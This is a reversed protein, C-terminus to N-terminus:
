MTQLAERAVTRSVGFRAVIEEASPFQSGTALRGSVVDAALLISTREHLRPRESLGDVAAMRDDSSAVRM